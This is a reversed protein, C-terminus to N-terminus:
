RRTRDSKSSAPTARGCSCVDISDAFRVPMRVHRRWYGPDALEARAPAGTVNSVIAIRPSEYTLGRAVHEFEDLMPEVLRSHFAHSVRLREVSM